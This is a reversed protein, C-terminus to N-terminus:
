FEPGIGFHLRWSEEEDDLPHAIDLRIPGVPSIWRVGAGVSKKLSEPWWDNFANGADLFTAGWWQGVIRRQYELSGVLLQRGGLQDGDSDEPSLSEYSYGRVSRDGGTFFRLSPPMQHFESTATAGASGRVVFRNNRGISDIWQADLRTRAFTVDSGWRKDSVEILLDQRNGHMPFTPDDTHSHSWSMGPVFLLATGSDNGQKFDEYTTRLYANQTWDNEFNWQRGFQVSSEFSNTDSTDQDTKSFGYQINYNGREPNSLPMNYKGSFEQEPGSLILDNVLSDGHDNLWPMDMSFRLRPGIDTAYGIGTEFQYRDAPIVNVNIPVQRPQQAAVEHYVDSAPSPENRRAGGGDAPPGDARRASSRGTAARDAVEADGSPAQRGTQDVQPQVGISRFWNSASLRQNYTALKGADYFDGPEFPAMNRLRSTRIQSGSFQIQGFRYRRGSDFVLTIRASNEWPRVEIRSARYGADFYGKQLALSSLQSKLAEYDAHHLAKGKMRSLASNDVAQQFAEDTSADGLIRIDLSRVRVPKGRRITVDVHQRNRFALAIEANYYGLARLAETVRHRVDPAYSETEAGKPITVPQLWTTVNSSLEGSVGSVSAEIALAQAPLLSMLTGLAALTCQQSFPRQKM